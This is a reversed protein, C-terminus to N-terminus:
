TYKTNITDTKKTKDIEYPRTGFIFFLVISQNNTLM